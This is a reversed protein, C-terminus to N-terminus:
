RVRISNSALIRPPEPRRQGPKTGNKRDEEGYSIAGSEFRWQRETDSFVPSHLQFTSLPQLLLNAAPTGFIVHTIILLLLHILGDLPALTGPINLSVEGVCNASM